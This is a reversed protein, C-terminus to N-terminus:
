YYKKCLHTTDFIYIALFEECDKLAAHLAPNDHLRLGRRFWMVNLGAPGAMKLSVKILDVVSSHRNESLYCVVEAGICMLHFNAM